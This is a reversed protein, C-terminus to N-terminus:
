KTGITGLSHVLLLATPFIFMSQLAYACGSVLVCMHPFTSSLLCIASKFGEVSQKQNM